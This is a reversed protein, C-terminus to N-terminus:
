LSYHKQVESTKSIFSWTCGYKLISKFDGLATNPWLNINKRVDLADALLYGCLVQAFCMLIIKAALFKEPVIYTAVYGV